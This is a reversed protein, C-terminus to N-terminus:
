CQSKVLVTVIRELDNYATGIQFNKAMQLVWVLEKVPHNFNLRVKNAVQDLQLSEAGTFQLQDILYEHSMQACNYRKERFVKVNNTVWLDCLRNLSYRLCDYPIVLEKMGLVM